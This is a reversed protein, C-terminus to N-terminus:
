RVDNGGRRDMGQRDEPKDVNTRNEKDAQWQRSEERKRNEHARLVEDWSSPGACGACTQSAENIVGERGCERCVAYEVVAESM